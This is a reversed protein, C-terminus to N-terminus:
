HVLTSFTPLSFFSTPIGLHFGFPLHCSFCFLFPYCPKHPWGASFSLLRICPEREWREGNENLVNVVIDCCKGGQYVSISPHNALLEYVITSFIYMLMCLCSLTVVKVELGATFVKFHCLSLSCLM